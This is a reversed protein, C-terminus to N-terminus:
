EKPKKKFRPWKNKLWDKVAKEDKEKAQKMPRQCSWGLNGLLRWVHGPHYKVHCVKEIVRAIRELTWLQTTYGYHEPGKLLAVEVRKMQSQIMKPKRGARGVGKLGNKGCRKWVHYWLSAAERSVGFTRAVESQSKRNSFM